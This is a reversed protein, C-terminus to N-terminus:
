NSTHYLRGITKCTAAIFDEDFQESSLYEKVEKEDQRLCRFTEYGIPQDIYDCQELELRVGLLVNFSVKGSIAESWKVYFYISLKRFPCSEHSDSSVWWCQGDFMSMINDLGGEEFVKKRCCDLVKDDYIGISVTWFATSFQKKVIEYNRTAHFNHLRQDCHKVQRWDVEYSMKLLITKIIDALQKGGELEIEYALRIYRDSVTVPLGRNRISSIITENMSNMAKYALQLQTPTFPILVVLKFNDSLSPHYNFCEMSIGFCEFCVEKRAYYPFEHVEVKDCGIYRLAKAILWESPNREEM